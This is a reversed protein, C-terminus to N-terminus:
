IMAGAILYGCIPAFTLLAGGAVLWGSYLTLKSRLLQVVYGVVGLWGLWLMMVTVLARGPSEAADVPIMRSMAFGAAGILVLVIVSIPLPNEEPDRQVVALYIGLGILLAAFLILINIM